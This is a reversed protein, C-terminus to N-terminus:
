LKMLLILFSGFVLPVEESYMEKLFRKARLRTRVPLSRFIEFRIM